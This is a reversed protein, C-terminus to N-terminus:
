RLYKRIIAISCEKAAQSDKQLKSDWRNLRSVSDVSLDKKLLLVAEAFHAFDAFELRYKEKLEQLSADAACGLWRQEISRCKSLLDGVPLSKGNVVINEMIKMLVESQQLEEIQLPLLNKQFLYYERVGRDADDKKDSFSQGRQKELFVKISQLRVRMFRAQSKYLEANGSQLELIDKNLVEPKELLAKAAKIQQLQKRATDLGCAYLTPDSSKDMGSIKSFAAQAKDQIASVQKLADRQYARGQSFDRLARGCALLHAELVSMEENLRLDGVAWSKNLAARSSGAFCGFVAGLALLLIFLRAFVTKMAIYIVRFARQLM